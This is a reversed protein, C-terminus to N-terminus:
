LLVDRRRDHRWRLPAASILIATVLVWGVLLALVARELVATATSRGIALLCIGLAALTPATIAFAYRASRSGTAALSLIALTALGISLCSATAHVLDTATAREYPPLPCGPSCTVVASVSGIAGAAVLLGTAILARVVAGLLVLGVCLGLIGLRYLGSRPDTAVGAESVYGTTWPHPLAAVAVIIAVAGAATVLAAAFSLCRQV